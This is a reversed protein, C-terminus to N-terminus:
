YSVKYWIKPMKHLHILAREFTSILGHFRVDTITKGKLRNSIESLYMHWIKYSRPLYTLAREYIVYRNAPTSNQKLKLYLIWTKLDFPNRSITEEFKFESNVTTISM